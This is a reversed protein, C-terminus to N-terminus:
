NIKKYIIPSINNEKGELVDFDGTVRLEQFLYNSNEFSGSNNSTIVDLVLYLWRNTISYYLWKIKIRKNEYPNNISNGFNFDGNSIFLTTKIKENTINTHMTFEWEGNLKSIDNAKKWNNLENFYMTNSETIKKIDFNANDLLKKTESETDILEKLEAQQKIFESRLDLYKNIPISGGKSIRLNWDESIKQIYTYFASILMKILPFVFTYILAALIPIFICNVASFNKVILDFYSILKDKSLEDHKYFILAIPIRWNIILWSIIFSSILPNSVRLKLEKYLESIGLM